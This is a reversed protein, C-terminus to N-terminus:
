VLMCSSCFYLVCPQAVREIQGEQAALLAKLVPDYEAEEDVNLKAVDGYTPKTDHRQAQLAADNDVFDGPAGYYYM